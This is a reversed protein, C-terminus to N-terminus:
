GFILCISINYKILEIFLFTLFIFFCNRGNTSQRVRNQPTIDCEIIPASGGVGICRASGNNNFVRKLFNFSRM